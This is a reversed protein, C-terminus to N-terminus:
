EVERELVDGNAPDFYIEVRNEGETGYIEYCGDSVKMQRIVGGQDEFNKAIQWMPLSTESRSCNPGAAAPIAALAIPLALTCASLRRLMM